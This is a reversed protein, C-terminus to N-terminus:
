YRGHCGECQPSRDRIESSIVGCRAFIMYNDLWCPILKDQSARKLSEFARPLLDVAAYGDLSSDDKNWNIYVTKIVTDIDVSEVQQLYYAIFKNDTYERLSNQLRTELFHQTTPFKLAKM